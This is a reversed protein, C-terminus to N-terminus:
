LGLGLSQHPEATVLTYLKTHYERYGTFWGLWQGSDPGWVCIPDHTVKGQILNISSMMM